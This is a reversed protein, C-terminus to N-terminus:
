YSIINDTCLPQQEQRAIVPCRHCIFSFHMFHEFYQKSPQMFNRCDFVKPSKQATTMYGLCFSQTTHSWLIEGDGSTQDYTLSLAGGYVANMGRLFPSEIFKRKFTNNLSTVACECTLLDVVIEKALLTKMLYEGNGTTCTAACREENSMAWCGAGYSSNQKTPIEVSRM